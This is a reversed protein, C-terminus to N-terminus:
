SLRRAVTMQDWQQYENIFFQLLEEGPLFLVSLHDLFPFSLWVSPARGHDYGTNCNMQAAATTFVKSIFQEQVVPDSQFEVSADLQLVPIKKLKDFHIRFLSLTFELNCYLHRPGGCVSCPQLQRIESIIGNVSM